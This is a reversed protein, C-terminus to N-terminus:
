QNAYASGLALASLQNKTHIMGQIRSLDDNANNAVGNVIMEAVITALKEISTNTLLRTLDGKLGDKFQADLLCDMCDIRQMIELHHNPINYSGNGECVECDKNFM